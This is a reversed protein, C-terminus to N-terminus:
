DDNMHLLKSAIGATRTKYLLPVLYDRKFKLLGKVQGYKGLIAEIGGDHYDQIFTRRRSHKTNFGKLVPQLIETESVPLVQLGDKISDFLLQGKDNNIIVASVGTNNDMSPKIREIGWFDGISIDGVRNMSMFPCQYCSERFGIKMEYMRLFSAQDNCYDSIDKGNAVVKLHKNRWGKKKDRFSIYEVTGFKDELYRIYESWITPSFVGNCFIDIVYLKEDSIRKSALFERIAACQCSTGFFLVIKGGALERYLADYADFLNSQPYKTGQLRPISSMDRIAFHEISFSDAFGAGFVTGGKELAAKALLPYVGGSASSKVIKEDKNIVAYCLKKSTQKFSTLAACVNECRQCHICLDENIEPFYFGLEDRKIGIADKPCEMRCLQCGSCRSPDVIGNKGTKSVAEFHSLIRTLEKESSVRFDDLRKQVSRYDINALAKVDETSNVVRERIGLVTLLHEIREGLQSIRVVFEKQFITAFVCGHFSDTIIFEANKFLGLWENPGITMETKCRLLGYPFPVYVIKLGKEKAIGRVFDVFAKSPVMQYALLYKGKITPEIAIAEWDKRSLLVTPDCVVGAECGTLEGILRAGSEERSDLIAFDKLLERYQGRQADNIKSSGFSAAYSARKRKDPVFSLFYREDLGTIDSNWVNDSGVIYGDFTAGLQSINKETVTKTMKLCENRFKSFQKARPLRTLAGICGTLYRKPGKAKLAAISFPMESVKCVYDIVETEVGLSEIKKQLAYCQLMAGYNDHRQYTLTAVRM